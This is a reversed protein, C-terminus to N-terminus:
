AAARPRRYTPQAIRYFGDGSIAQTEAVAVTPSRTVGHSAIFAEIAEADHSHDVNINAARLKAHYLRIGDAKLDMAKARNEGVAKRQKPTWFPNCKRPKERTWGYRHVYAHITNPSLKLRLAIEVIREGMDFRHRVKAVLDDPWPKM